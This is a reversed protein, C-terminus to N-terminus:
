AQLHPLWAEVARDIEDFVLGFFDDDRLYPDVIDKDGLWKGLKFAKGRAEPYRRLLRELHGDDMVLILDSGAVLPSCMQQPEHGELAYGRAAAVRIGAAEAGQGTGRRARCLECRPAAGPRRACSGRLPQSLHQGYLGHRRTQVDTAASGISILCGRCRPCYM